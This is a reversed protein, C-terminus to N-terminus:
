LEANKEQLEEQSVKLEEESAKLEANMQRLEEQQTELEEAQNQTEFLLKQTQLHSQLTYFFVGIKESATKLFELQNGTYKKRSGLELVGIISSTYVIPLILINVPEIDSIGTKIKLYDESVEELNLIKNE